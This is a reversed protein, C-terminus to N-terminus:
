ASKKYRPRERFEKPSPSERKVTAVNDAVVIYDRNRPSTDALEVAPVESIGTTMHKYAELYQRQAVQWYRVQESLLEGGSQCRAIAQPYELNAVLRRTALAMTEVQMRGVARFWADCAALPLFGSMAPSAFVSLM